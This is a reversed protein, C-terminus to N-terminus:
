RHRLPHDRADDQSLRELWSVNRVGDEASPTADQGTRVAQVFARLEAAYPNQVDFSRAAGNVHVTGAGHAGLTDRCVIEGTAGTILIRKTPADVSSVDLTALAGNTFRLVFAASEDAHQHHVGDATLARVTEIPGCTPSLLWEALDVVHSGLAALVWWRGLEPSTRWGMPKPDTTFWQLYLHRPTGIEGAALAARVIMHGPAYRNHYGVQCRVNNEHCAQAVARADIAATALPKEVFVHKGARAAAIATDSHKADHNAILVAELADDALLEALTSPCPSSGSAHFTEALTQARAPDGSLVARLDMGIGALQPLLCEEAFGSAGILAVRLPSTNM